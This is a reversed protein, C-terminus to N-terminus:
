NLNIISGTVDVTGAGADIKVGTGSIDVRGKAKLSINGAAEVAVDGDVRVNLSDSATDLVMRNGNKDEITIGGGAEADDILITHGVRSRIMRQRVKGGSVIKAKDCPPPDQGNWLGGLVYAQHVDGLEFGVLVEDNVEPLFQVGRGSGAGASVVRAWDSAHDPSLWPYKVKVRGQGDPDQNDTVVGIVLGTAPRPPPEPALLALLTPARCGSVSFFTQYGDAPTHVHRAATVLYKGTFREGLADLKLGMGATIRADGICVGEAEVFRGAHRDAVAQALLDAQNQSRVPRDATLHAADLNFAGNALQGGRRREGIDPAGNGNAVKGVIEQRSAPDWGRVTFSGVQDITTLRPRFEKLNQAWKLEIPDGEPKPAGCHLTREHAYLIYGLGAARKRLFELNTENDQFVYPHVQSTNGVEAKLGVEQALKKVLDGDTVNLFSRVHRGRSLRHLVDFARVVLQHSSVGFEPELEVIEGDFLPHETDTEPGKASVKLRKGPELRPEDIWRLKTDALVLTAVDPLHLSSEITISLLDHMLDTVLSEGMGDIQVFFHSILKQQDAM